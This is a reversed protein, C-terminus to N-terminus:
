ITSTGRFHWIQGHITDAITDEPARISLQCRNQMVGSVEGIVKNGDPETAHNM